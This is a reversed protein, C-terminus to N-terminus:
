LDLSIFGLLTAYFCINQIYPVVLLSRLDRKRHQASALLTKRINGFHQKNTSTDGLYLLAISWQCFCILMSVLLIIITLDLYYCCVLLIYLM